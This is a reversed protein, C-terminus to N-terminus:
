DPQQFFLEPPSSATSGASTSTTGIVCDPGTKM